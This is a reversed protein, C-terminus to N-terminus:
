QLVTGQILSWSSRREALFRGPPTGVAKRFMTVFAGASEYGLDFAVSQISRGQMLLQVGTIVHLQRRWRGVSMGTELNFLRSLSRESMGIRHAWVELTAHNAPDDLLIDTLKRLRNDLPIPLHLQELPASVLEDLMVAMLRGEAGEEDYYENFGAAKELLNQLLPSVSVSCCEKPLGEVADPEVFLGFGRTEGTSKAKHSLGGPVWVACQPPVVWVGRETEVTVVGSVSFLLQAKRHSHKPYEWGDVLMSLGVVVVPRDIQDPVQYDHHESTFFMSQGSNQHSRWCSSHKGCLRM